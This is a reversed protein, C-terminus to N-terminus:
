RGNSAILGPQRCLHELPWARWLNGIRWPMSAIFISPLLLAAPASHFSSIGSPLSCGLLDRCAERREFARCRGNGDAYPYTCNEARKNLGEHSRHEVAPMIQRRAAAYSSLKDTMMRRSPCGQKKMPCKLLGKAV